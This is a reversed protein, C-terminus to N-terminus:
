LFLMFTLINIVKLKMIEVTIPVFSAFSKVQDLTFKKMLLLAIKRSQQPSTYWWFSRRRYITIQM